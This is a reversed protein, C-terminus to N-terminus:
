SVVGKVYRDLAYDETCITGCVEDYPYYRRTAAHETNLIKGDKTDLRYPQICVLVEIRPDRKFTKKTRSYDYEISLIASTIRGHRGTYLGSPICAAWGQLEKVDRDLTKLDLSNSIREKIKKIRTM